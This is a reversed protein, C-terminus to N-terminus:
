CNKDSDHQFKNWIQLCHHDQNHSDSMVVAQEDPKSCHLSPVEGNINAGVMSVRRNKM